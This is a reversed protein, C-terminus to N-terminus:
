VERLAEKSMMNNRVYSQLEEIIVNLLNKEIM